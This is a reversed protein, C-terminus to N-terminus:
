YKKSISWIESEIAPIAEDNTIRGTLILLNFAIHDAWTLM